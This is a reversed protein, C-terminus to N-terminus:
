RPGSRLSGFYRAGRRTGFFSLVLLELTVFEFLDQRAYDAARNLSNELRSSLM